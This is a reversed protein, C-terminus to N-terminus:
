QVTVTVRAVPNLWRHVSSNLDSVGGTADYDGLVGRHIHVSTNNESSTVGTAGTGNNGTPDAPIGAVGTAGGGNIIEDNAETGADYADLTFTYVGPTTPITWANLGVFGDNTPLIMATISLQTNTLTDFDGTSTSAGPALFGSAPNAVSVANISDALTNLGSIDGGEAMTTLEASASTGVQFLNTGSSHATVLIPTFTNGHTLNTIEVDITASMAQNAALGALLVLATAAHHSTPRTIRIM